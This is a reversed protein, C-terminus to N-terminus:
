SNARGLLDEEDSARREQDIQDDLVDDPAVDKPSAAPEARAPRPMAPADRRIRVEQIPVPMDIGADDFAMKVLLVAKSRVKEMDAERQDVWAYFRVRVSSDGLEEVRAFPGPEHAVAPVGHLTAIGLAQARVLDETVGVGVSLAFRRMPNRTYNLIVSKFVMANPIRLHNGDLTLLLTERITLRIVKGENGGIVVHDNAAFPKWIGLIISALYNEAIDRFAFGIAIGALGATGLVAGVLATAGLLELALVVGAVLVVLSAAQRVLGQVLPARSIRRWPLSWERVGRAVLAALAVIALAVALVPLSALASRGMDEVKERVPSLSHTVDRDLARLRLRDVVHAVGPTAAAVAKATERAAADPVFGGLKVVSGAAEVEVETLDEILGFARRIRAEVARDAADEEDQPSGAAVPETLPPEQGLALGPTLIAILLALAASACSRRADHPSPRTIM